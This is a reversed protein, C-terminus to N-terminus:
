LTITLGVYPGALDLDLDLKGGSDDVKAEVHQLRYGLMLQMDLGTQKFTYGASIDADYYKVSDDDLEFGLFNVLAVVEFKWIKRGARAALFGFPLNDSSRVEGTGSLAQMNLDYDITGVGAGIGLDFLLDPLIDVVVSGTYLKLDLNTHVDQGATIGNGNGFDLTADATGDGEFRVDYGQAYVNVPDWDFDVRPQFVYEDDIGLDDVSSNSSVGPANAGVHGDLKMKGYRPYVRLNPLACSSAMAALILLLLRSPLKM